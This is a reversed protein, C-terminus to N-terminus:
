NTKRMIYNKSFNLHTSFKKKNDKDNRAIKLSDCFIKASVRELTKRLYIMSLAM